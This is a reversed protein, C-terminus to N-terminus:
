TITDSRYQKQHHHYYVAIAELENRYFNRFARDIQQIDAIICKSMEDNPNLSLAQCFGKYDLNQVAEYLNEISCIGKQNVAIALHLIQSYANGITSAEYIMPQNFEDLQYRSSILHPEKRIESKFFRFRTGELLKKIQKATKPPNNKAAIIEQISM